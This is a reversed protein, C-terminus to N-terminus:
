IWTWIVLDFLDLDVLALSCAITQFKSLVKAYSFFLSFLKQYIRLFLMLFIKWKRM